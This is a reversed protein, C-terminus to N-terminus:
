RFNPQPLARLASKLVDIDIPKTLHRFFGAHESRVIDEQQGFGSIAIGHMGGRAKFRNMLDCGNGDPLGIDTVLIDCESLLTEAEELTEATEVVYGAKRLLFALSNLTDAHDDVLLIRTQTSAAPQHRMPADVQPRRQQEALPLELIFTAGRGVGASTASLRGQHSDAITRAITLGLGLGGRSKIAGRHGQEFPQFIRELSEPDIGCGSDEVILQVSQTDNKLTVAIRGSAPTFKIANTLLNNVVQHLRLSAGIVLTQEAAFDVELAIHKQRIEDRFIAVSQDVVEQLDVLDLDVNLKGHAAVSVDLLDNILMTEMEVNRRVMKLADDIASPAGGDRQKHMEHELVDLGAKVPTLPTRLEHSLVAIFRDKAENAAEAKLRLSQENLLQKLSPLHVIRPAIRYLIIATPVSAMATIAKIIGSIAYYPRYVTIIEMVHTMGCAVIFVGFCVFMWNFPLDRRKRMIQFVLTFPIAMYSAAILSDSIISTWLIGPDWQFCHGHPMFREINFLDNM